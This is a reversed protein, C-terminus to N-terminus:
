KIVYIPKGIEIEVSTTAIARGVQTLFAGSAALANLQTQWSPYDVLAGSNSISLYQVDGPTLASFNSYIADINVRILSGAIGSDLAVGVVSAQEKVTAIAKRIFGASTLFVLDGASITENTPFSTLAM